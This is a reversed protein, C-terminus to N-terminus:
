YKFILPEPEIEPDSPSIGTIYSLFKHSSYPALMAAWHYQGGSTPARSARDAHSIPFHPLSRCCVDLRTGVFGRLDSRHEGM